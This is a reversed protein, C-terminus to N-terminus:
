DENELIEVIQMLEEESMKALEEDSFHKKDDDIFRHRVEKGFLTQHTNILMAHFTANTGIGNSNKAFKEARLLNEGLMSMLSHSTLAKRVAEKTIEEELDKDIRDFVEAEIIERGKKVLKEEIDKDIIEEMALSLNKYKNKQWGEKSIWSEVTKISVDAGEFREKMMKAVSLNHSEYVARIKVKLTPDILIEM